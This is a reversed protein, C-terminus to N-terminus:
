KIKRIAYYLAAFVSLITLIVTFVHELNLWNDIKIGLFICIAMIGLMEFGLSSFKVFSNFESNRKKQNKKQQNQM